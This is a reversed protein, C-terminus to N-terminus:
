GSALTDLADGAVYKEAEATICLQVQNDAVRKLRDMGFAERDITTTARVTYLDHTADAHQTLTVDFTVARTIGRLTLEGRLRASDNGTWELGQSVFLIEPHAAVDFFDRGLLIDRIWTGETDLSASEVLIMTQGNAGPGLAMGGRFAAFDGEVRHLASDVCFGVRSSAPDIRYLQGNSAAALMDELLDHNVVGDRFPACLEDTDARATVASGALLAVALLLTHLKM